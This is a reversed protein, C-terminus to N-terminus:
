SHRKSGGDGDSSGGAGNKPTRSFLMKFKAVVGRWFIGVSIIAAALAQLMMSGTGPDLYAHAPGAAALSVAIALFVPRVSITM